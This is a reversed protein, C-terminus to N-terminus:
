QSSPNTGRRSSVFQLRVLDNMAAGIVGDTFTLFTGRV